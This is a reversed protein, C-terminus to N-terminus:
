EAKEPLNIIVETRQDKVSEIHIKGGMEEVIKKSLYLGLGSGSQKTTHFPEFLRALEKKKLGAGHDIVGIIV